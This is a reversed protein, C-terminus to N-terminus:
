PGAVLVHGRGSSYTCMERGIEQLDMKITDKLRRRPSEFRIKRQLKGVSAKYANVKSRIRAVNGACLHGKIQM